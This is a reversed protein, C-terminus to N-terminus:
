VEKSFTSSVLAGRCIELWQSRTMWTGLSSQSPVAGWILTEIPIIPGLMAQTRAFLTRPAVRDLVNEGRLSVYLGRMKM